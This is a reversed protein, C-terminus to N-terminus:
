KSPEMTYDTEAREWVKRYKGKHTKQWFQVGPLKLDELSALDSAECRQRWGGYLRGNPTNDPEIAFFTHGLAGLWPLISKRPDSRQALPVSTAPTKM